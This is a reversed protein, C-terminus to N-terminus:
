SNGFFDNKIKQFWKKLFGLWGLAPRLSTHLFWIEDAKPRGLASFHFMVKKWLKEFIWNKLWVNNLFLPLILSLDLVRVYGILIKKCLFTSTKYFFSLDQLHELKMVSEITFSSIIKTISVSLKLIFLFMKQLIKQCLKKRQSRLM